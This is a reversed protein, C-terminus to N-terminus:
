IQKSSRGKLVGEYRITGTPVDELTSRIHATFVIRSLANKAPSADTFILEDSLLTNKVMFGWLGKSLWRLDKEEKM